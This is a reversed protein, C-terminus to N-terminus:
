AKFTSIIREIAMKIQRDKDILQQIDTSAKSAASYTISFLKGIENNTLATYRKILFIAMKKEILPRKNM